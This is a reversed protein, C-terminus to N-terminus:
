INLVPKPTNACFEKVKPLSLVNDKLERFSPYKEELDPMQLMTKLYDFMGTFAFDAWTLKGLALHGNNQKILEDLKNLLFPYQNKAFDEQKKAKAAEDAEYWVTAAKVRIDNVFDYSQDILLDEELNAGALGYKHGLYRCIAGSQAYRKGGMDLMPLQGFPTKPKLEPWDEQSVRHDEFEEGGYALLLRVGEGLAKLNFYYFVTKEM